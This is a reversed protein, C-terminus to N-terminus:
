VAWFTRHSLIPLAVRLLFLDSRLLKGWSLTPLKVIMALRNTCWFVLTFFFFFFFFFRFAFKTEEWGGMIYFFFDPTKARLGLPVTIILRAKFQWDSLNELQKFPLLPCVKSLCSPHPACYYPAHQSSPYRTSGFQVSLWWWGDASLNKETERRLDACDYFLVLLIWQQRWPESPDLSYQEDIEDKRSFVFCCCFCVQLDCHWHCHSASSTHSSRMLNENRTRINANYLDRLTESWSQHPQEIGCSVGSSQKVFTTVVICALSHTAVSLEKEM